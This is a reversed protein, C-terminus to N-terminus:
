DAGDNRPPMALAAIWYSELINQIAADNGQLM